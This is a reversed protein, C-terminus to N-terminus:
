RRTAFSQGHVAVGSSPLSWRRPGAQPRAADRRRAPAPTRTMTNEADHNGRIAVVPKGAATLRAMQPAFFLGTGYDQWDGDYIDGAILLFAVDEDLALDVLKGLARRTAGRISPRRGRTRTWAACPATSTSTRRM